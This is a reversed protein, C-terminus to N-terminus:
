YGVVLCAGSDAGLIMLTPLSVSLATITLGSCFSSGIAVPTTGTTYPTTFTISQSVASTNQYGAFNLVTLKYGSGTAPQSWKVSGASTGALNHLIANANVGLGTVFATTALNTSSDGAAATPAHPIAYFTCVDTGTDCSQTM